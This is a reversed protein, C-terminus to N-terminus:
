YERHPLIRGNKEHGSRHDVAEEMILPAVEEIIAMDEAAAMDERIRRIMIGAAQRMRIAMTTTAAERQTMTGEELHRAARIRAAAVERARRQHTRALAAASGEAAEEATEEHNKAINLTHTTLPIRHLDPDNTTSESRKANPNRPDPRRDRDRHTPARILSPIPAQTRTLIPANRNRTDRSKTRKPTPTM